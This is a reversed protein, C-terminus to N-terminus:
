APKAKNFLDKSTVKILTKRKSKSRTSSKKTEIIKKSGTAHIHKKSYTINLADISTFNNFNLSLFEEKTM